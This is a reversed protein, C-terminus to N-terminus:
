KHWPRIEWKFRGLEIDFPEVFGTKGMLYAVAPVCIGTLIAALILAGLAEM